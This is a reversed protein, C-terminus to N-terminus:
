WMAMYCFSEQRIEWKEKIDVIQGLESIIDIGCGIEEKIERELAETISEGAEIGGSPLKHYGRKSVHLLAM